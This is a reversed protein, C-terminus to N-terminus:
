LERQGAPAPRGPCASCPCGAPHPDGDLDALVAQLADGSLPQLQDTLMLAHQEWRWDQPGSLPLGRSIEPHGLFINSDPDLLMRHVTRAPGPKLQGYCGSLQHPFIPALLNMALLQFPLGTMGTTLIPTTDSAIDINGTLLAINVWDCSPRVIQGGHGDVYTHGHKVTTLVLVFSCTGGGTCIRIDGPVV